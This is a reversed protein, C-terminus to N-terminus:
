ATLKIPENHVNLKLNNQITEVLQIIQDATHNAAICIRLQAKNRPVIPFFVVSVFFGAELIKKGIKLAELENGILVMRIPSFNLEEGVLNDYLSVNERLKKQLGKVSGDKHLNIAALCANVISFDLAASFAYIQGFSRVLQEQTRNSLIVGGGNCGFGKSLCFTVIFNDPISNFNQMVYGEGLNGFISTGHADDLYIYFDLEKSLRILEEIPCTGGMSYVGDAIYVAQKGTNHADIVEAKLEELSNHAITKIEAESALIPKLYQMSSHAFKDFIIKVKPPNKYNILSGSALLPLVSLHTTTVSPFTIVRGRFLESLEEELRRTPEISFRSRACCFNIGWNSDLNKSAEIITPDLDLGLYSCNIFEVVEQGNPMTVIKNNRGKISVQMLDLEIANQYNPFSNQIVFDTNRHKM